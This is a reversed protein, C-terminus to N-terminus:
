ELVVRFQIRGITIVDGTSLVVPKTVLTQNILTGNRSQQDELWWQGQRWGIHAHYTSCFTDALVITNTAGRGITTLPLLDFSQGIEIDPLESEMVLLSGTKRIIEQSVPASSRVDRWIYILLLGLFVYLVVAIAARLILLTTSLPM